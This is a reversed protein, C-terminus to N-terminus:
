TNKMQNRRTEKKMLHIKLLLEQITKTETTDRRLMQKEFSLIDEERYRIHKGFKLFEPGKGNWRWQSLTSLPVNWRKSLDEPEYKKEEM